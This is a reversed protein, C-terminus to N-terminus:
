LVGKGGSSGSITSTAYPNPLATTINSTYPAGMAPHVVPTRSIVKVPKNASQGIDKYMDYPNRTTPDLLAALIDSRTYVIHQIRLELKVAIQEYWSFKGHSIISKWPNTSMMLQTSPLSLFKEPNKRLQDILIKTETCCLPYLMKIIQENIM